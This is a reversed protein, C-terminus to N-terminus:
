GVHGKEVREKDIKPWKDESVDKSVKEVYWDCLDIANAYGTESTFRKKDVEKELGGAAKYGSWDFYDSTWTMAIATGSGPNPNPAHCRAVGRYLISLFRRNM